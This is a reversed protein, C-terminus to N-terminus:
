VHQWTLMLMNLSDLYNDLMQQMQEETSDLLRTKQQHSSYLSVIIIMTAFIIIMPSLIKWKISTM